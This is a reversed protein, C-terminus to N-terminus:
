AEGWVERAVDVVFELKRRQDDVSLANGQITSAFGSILGVIVGTLIAGDPLIWVRRRVYTFALDIAAAVVAAVAVKPLVAAVDAKLCAAALLAAFIVLLLGKPTRLFKLARRTLVAAEISASM